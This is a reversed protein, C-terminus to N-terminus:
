KNYIRLLLKKLNDQKIPVLNKVVTKPKAAPVPVAYTQNLHLPVILGQGSAIYSGRLGNVKRLYNINSHYNKAISTLTEGKRVQHYEWSIHPKGSIKVLNQHFIKKSDSPILLTYVGDPNTAWRRMGPNLHRIVKPSVGALRGAVDLDVQSNMNVSLFYPRYPIYPLRVNYYYANKIISALALLKPIYWQAEHSLSLNWFHVSKGMRHNKQKAAQVSGIGANYAVAALLWSHLSKHLMSLYNLAAQTSVITDRRADYWWNIHLGLSSATRPMMQWIGTAGASSYAFPNYGSEVMPLLAFEAPMNRAKTQQYVYYIYPIANRLMQELVKKNKLYLTIQHVVEPRYYYKNLNFHAILIPWLSVTPVSMNNNNYNKLSANIADVVSKAQIPVRTSSNQFIYLVKVSNGAKELATKNIYSIAQPTGTVVEIAQKDNMVRAPPNSASHLISSSWYNSVQKPTWGMLKKYFTRYARTSHFQDFPLLKERTNLVVPKGFYINELQQKSLKNVRINDNGIVVIDGDAVGCMLLAAISVIAIKGVKEFWM